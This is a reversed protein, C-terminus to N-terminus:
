RHTYTHIYVHTFTCTYIHTYIYIHTHAHTHIYTYIHTHPTYIYIYTSQLMFYWKLCLVCGFIRECVRERVSYAIDSVNSGYVHVLETMAMAPQPVVGGALLIVCTVAMLYFANM